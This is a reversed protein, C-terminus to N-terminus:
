SGHCDICQLQNTKYNVTLRGNIEEEKHCAECKAEAHKGELPFRSENHDFNIPDWAVETSHCRACDVVPVHGVENFQGAHTDEHCSICDTELPAFIQSELGDPLHCEKCNVQTHLGELAYNTQSHDFSILSWRETNHCTVCGNNETYSDKLFDEHVNEHCTLCDNSEFSFSWNSEETMHCSTCPTALHAGELPYNSQQHEMLGYTSYTFPQEVSHCEKCDTIAGYDDTFDGQHYDEHCDTCNAFPMAQYGNEHCSKCELEEHQGLLPYRTTNHDFSSAADSIKWDWISHCSTCKSGLRGEHYDEHCDTCQAFPINVYKAFEGEGDKENQHCEKCDVKMHAGRLPYKTTNHDFNATPVWADMGHCQLCDESLQGRHQDEHCALCATELGLYTGSRKAIEEDAIFSPQHCERCDVEAHAGELQYGTLDHNFDISDFRTADFGRGHHESHCSICTQDRVEKSSHYGRNAERLSTIDVHCDLCKVESIASGLEHCQTCNKMGELHAHASSLDGPSFQAFLLQPLMWFAVLVGRINLANIM